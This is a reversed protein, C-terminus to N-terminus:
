VTVTLLSPFYGTFETVTCFNILFEFKKKCLNVCQDGLHKTAIAVVELFRIFYVSLRYFVRLTFRVGIQLDLFDAICLHHGRTTWVVDCVEGLTDAPGKM